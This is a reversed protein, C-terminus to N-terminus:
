LVRGGQFRPRGLPGRGGQVGQSVRVSDALVHGSWAVPCGPCGPCGVSLVTALFSRVSGQSVHRERWPQLRSDVKWSIGASHRDLTEAGGVQEADQAAGAGTSLPVSAADTVAVWGRGSGSTTSSRARMRRSPASRAPASHMPLGSGNSGGPGRRVGRRRRIGAGHRTAASRHANGLGPGNCRSPVTAVPRRCPGRRGGVMVAGLSAGSLVGGCSCGSTRRRGREVPSRFWSARPLRHEFASQCPVAAVGPEQRHQGFAVAKMSASGSRDAAVKALVRRRIRM